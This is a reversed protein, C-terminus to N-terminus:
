KRAKNTENVCVHCVFSNPNHNNLHSNKYGFLVYVSNGCWNCEYPTTFITMSGSAWRIYEKPLIHEGIDVKKTM